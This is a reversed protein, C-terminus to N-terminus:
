KKVKKGPKAVEADERKRKVGRDAEQSASFEFILKPSGPISRNVHCRITVRDFLKIHQKTAVNVLESDEFKWDKLESEDFYIKGEFGHRMVFVNVGNRALKMVTAEEEITKDGLFLFTHYRTSDRGAHDAMRNRRNIIESTRQVQKKSLGKTLPAYGISAALLRHVVVDAYRRIPSTFHTYIPCALGFHWFDVPKFSGSSFYRAQSMCRTVMMRFMKDFSEDRKAANVSNSLTQSSTGDLHIDFRAVKQNLAHVLDLIPPPHRRLMSFAPYFRYIQEAVSINALLMFEEVLSHTDKTQYLEMDVLNNTEEDKIFKAEASALTLAGSLM